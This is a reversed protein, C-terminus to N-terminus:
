GQQRIDVEVFHEVGPELRHHLRNKFSFCEKEPVGVVEDQRESRPLVSPADELRQRLPERLVSQRNVGGLSSEYTEQAWAVVARTLSLVLRTARRFREVEQAERVVPSAGLLLVPNDFTLRRAVAQVPREFPYRCPTTLVTVPLDGRLM